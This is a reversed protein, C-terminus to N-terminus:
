QKGEKDKMNKNETASQESPAGARDEFGKLMGSKSKTSNTDASKKSEKSTKKVPEKSKEFKESLGSKKVEKSVRKSTQEGSNTRAASLYRMPATEDQTQLWELAQKAIDEVPVPKGPDSDMIEREVQRAFMEAAGMKEKRFKSPMAALVSERLKYRDFEEKKGSRKKVETAFLGKDPSGVAEMTTFRCGCKGCERRRRVRGDRYLRSDTVRTKKNCEPCRM